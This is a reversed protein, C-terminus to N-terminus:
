WHKCARVSILEQFYNNRLIFQFPDNKLFGAPQLDGVKRFHVGEYTNKLFKTLM